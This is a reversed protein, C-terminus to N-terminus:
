MKENLNLHSKKHYCADKNWVKEQQVILNQTSPVVCNELLTHKAKRTDLSLLLGRKAYNVTRLYAEMGYMCWANLPM